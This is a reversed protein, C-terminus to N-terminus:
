LQITSFALAFYPLDLMVRELHEVLYEFFCNQMDM